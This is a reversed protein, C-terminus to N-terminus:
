RRHNSTHHLLADGILADTAEDINVVEVKVGHPAIVAAIDAGSPRNDGPRDKAGNVKVATLKKTYDM